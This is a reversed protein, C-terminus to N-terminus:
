EGRLLAERMAEIRAYDAMLRVLRLKLRELEEELRRREEGARRFWEVLGRKIGEARRDLPEDPSSPPLSLIRLQEAPDAGRFVAELRDLERALSTRVRSAEGRLSDLEQSARSIESRLAALREGGSALEARQSEVRRALEEGRRRLEWYTALAEGALSNCRALERRREALAREVEERRREARERKAEDAAVARELSRLEGRLDRARRLSDLAEELTLGREAALRRLEELQGTARELEERLPGLRRELEERERQERRSYEEELGALRRRVEGLRGELEALERRASEMKSELRKWYRRMVTSPEVGLRRAEERYSSEGRDLRRFSEEWEEESPM